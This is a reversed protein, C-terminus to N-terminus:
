DLNLYKPVKRQRTRHFPSTTWATAVARPLDGVWHALVDIIPSDQAFLDLNLGGQTQIELCNQEASISRLSMVNPEFRKKSLASLFSFDSSM